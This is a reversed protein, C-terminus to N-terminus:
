AFVRWEWTLICGCSDIRVIVVWRSDPNTIAHAVAHTVTRHCSVLLRRWLRDRGDCHCVCCHSTIVVNRVEVHGLRRGRQFIGAPTLRGDNGESSRASGCLGVLHGRGPTTVRSRYPHRVLETRTSDTNARASASWVPRMVPSRGAVVNMVPAAPNMPVSSILTRLARPWSTNPRVHDKSAACRTRLAPAVATM